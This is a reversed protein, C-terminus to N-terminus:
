AGALFDAPGAVEEGEAAGGEEEVAADVGAVVAHGAEGEEIADIGFM